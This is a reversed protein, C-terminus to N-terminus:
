NSVVESEVETPAEDKAEKVETSAVETGVTIVQALPIEAKPEKKRREGKYLVLNTFIVIMGIHLYALLLPFYISLIGINIGLFGLSSVAIQCFLVVLSVRTLIVFKHTNDVYVEDFSRNKDMARILLVFFNVIILMICLFVYISFMIKSGGLDKDISVVSFVVSLSLFLMCQLARSWELGRLEKM